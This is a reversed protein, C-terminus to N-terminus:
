WLRLGWEAVLGGVTWCCGAAEESVDIGVDRWVEGAGVLVAGTRMREGFFINCVFGSKMGGYMEGHM